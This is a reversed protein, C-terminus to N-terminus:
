QDASRHLAKRVVGAYGLYGHVALRAGGGRLEKWYRRCSPTLRHDTPPDPWPDVM